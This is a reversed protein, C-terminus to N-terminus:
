LKYTISNSFSYYYHTIPVVPNADYMSYYKFGFSFHIGIAADLSISNAIRPHSFDDFGAQYFVATALTTTSSINGELKIYNNSKVKNVYVDPGTTKIKNTDVGQYDWGEAEYLVGTGIVFDWKKKNWLNYRMNAGSVYRYKMGIKDDWQYQTYVEPHLAKKYNYRWRFHVYGTNLFDQPGSFTFRESGSFIFLNKWKSMSFDATNTADFLTSNQKDVELGESFNGDWKAKHIYANTDVKDINIIQCFAGTSIILLLAPLLLRKM